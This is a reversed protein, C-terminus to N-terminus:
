SLAAMVRESVAAQGKAEAAKVLEQLRVIEARLDAVVEPTEFGYLRAMDAVTQRSFCLLGEQDIEVETNLVPEGNDPAGNIYDSAANAAYM